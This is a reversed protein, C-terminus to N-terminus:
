VLVSQIFASRRIKDSVKIKDEQEVLILGVFCLLVM